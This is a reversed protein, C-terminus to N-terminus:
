INHKVPSTPHAAQHKIDPHSEWGKQGAKPAKSKFTRSEKQKFKPPAAKTGAGASANMKSDESWLSLCINTVWWLHQLLLHAPFFWLYRWMKYHWLSWITNVHRHFTNVHPRFTKSRVSQNRHRFWVLAYSTKHNSSILHFQKFM